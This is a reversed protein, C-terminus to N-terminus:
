LVLETIIILVGLATVFWGFGTKLPQGPWKESLKKGALM